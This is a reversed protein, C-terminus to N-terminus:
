RCKHPVANEALPQKLVVPGGILVYSHDIFQESKVYWPLLTRRNQFFVLVGKDTTFHTSKYLNQLM